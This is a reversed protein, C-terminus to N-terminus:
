CQRWTIGRCCDRTCIETQGYREWRHMGFFCLLSGM